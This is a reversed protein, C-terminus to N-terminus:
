EKEGGAEGAERIIRLIGRVPLGIWDPRNNMEYKLEYFSKEVTFIRLLDQREKQSPPIFPQGKVAQFYGELFCRATEERWASLWGEIAAEEEPRKGSRALAVKWAAYDFSRLMGALDRFASRKLRRESLPRMPEGEFDIIFFDKGTFLVQGLHYDGHIRIKLGGFRERTLAGLLSLIERESQVVARAKEKTGEDLAPLVASLEGLTERILSRISQYVARQYLRSFPEPRFDPDGSDSALSLHMEGTRTGLLHVMQFFFEGAVERVESPLIGTGQRLALADECFQDLSSLFFRWATGQNRVFGHLTGLLRNGSRGSVELAGLFPPTHFYRAKESLFQSVELEPSIGEEVKRILKLICSENFVVSNNSQEESLLRSPEAAFDEGLWPRLLRSTQGTIEGEKGRKRKRTLIFDLIAAQFSRNVVADFLVGPEGGVSAKAIIASQLMEREPEADRERAFGLPIFYMEGTGESYNVEILLLHTGGGPHELFFDEKICLQRINRSKSGFWRSRELFKPLATELLRQPFEGSLPEKWRGPSDFLPMRETQGFARLTEKEVRDLRLWFYDHFGLTFLYPKSTIPPFRNGSFVEVPVAGEFEPLDLEVAQAFRSLNAVVLITESGLTRLFALVKPNKPQLFRTEGRSFCPYRKRMGIVRRMWWLLSSPNREQNEVNVAEYAYEPDTVVPL